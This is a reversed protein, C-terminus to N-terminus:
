GGSMWEYYTSLIGNVKVKRWQRWARGATNESEKKKVRLWIALACGLVDVAGSRWLRDWTTSCSQLRLMPSFWSVDLIWVRWRNVSGREAGAPDLELEPQRSRVEGCRLLWLGLEVMCLRLFHAATQDFLQGNGKEGRRQLGVTGFVQSVHIIGLEESPTTGDRSFGKGRGQRAGEVQDEPM